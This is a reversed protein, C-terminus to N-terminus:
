WIKLRGDIFLYDSKTIEDADNVLSVWKEFALKRGVMNDFASIVIESSLSKDDYRGYCEINNEDGSFRRSIQAITTAKNQGIHDLSYLQGCINEAGIHDDDFLTIDCGIRSLCFCVYSGIGGAGILLIHTNKLLNFWPADSFRQKFPSITPALTAGVEKEIDEAIM